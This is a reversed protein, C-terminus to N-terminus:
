VTRDPFVFQEDDTHAARNAESRAPRSGATSNGRRSLVVEGTREVHGSGLVLEPYSELDTYAHVTTRRESARVPDFVRFYNVSRGSYSGRQEVVSLTAPDLGDGVLAQAIAASPHRPQANRSGFGFM